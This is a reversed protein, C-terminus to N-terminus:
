ALHHQREVASAEGLAFQWGRRRAGVDGAGFKPQLERLDPLPAPGLGHALELFAQVARGSRDDVGGATAARRETDRTGRVTQADLGQREDGGRADLRRFPDARLERGQDLRRVWSTIAWGSALVVGPAM